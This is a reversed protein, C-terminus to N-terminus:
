QKVNHTRWNERFDELEALIRFILDSYTERFRGEKKLLEFSSDSLMITHRAHSKRM